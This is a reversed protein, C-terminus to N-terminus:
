QRTDDGVGSNDTAKFETPRKQKYKSNHPPFFAAVAIGHETVDHEISAFSLKICVVHDILDLQVAESSRCLSCVSIKKCTSFVRCEKVYRDHFNLNPM